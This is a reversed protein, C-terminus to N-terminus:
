DSCYIEFAARGALHGCQAARQQARAGGGGRVGEAQEHQHAGVDHVPQENGVEQIISNIIKHTLQTKPSLPIPNENKDTVEHPWLFTVDRSLIVLFMIWSQLTSMFMLTQLLVTRSAHPWSQMLTLTCLCHLHSSPKLLPVEQPLLTVHKFRLIKNKNAENFTFFFNSFLFLFNYTVLCYSFFFLEYNNTTRSIVFCNMIIVVLVVVSLSLSSSAPTSCHRMYCPLCLLYSVGNGVLKQPM